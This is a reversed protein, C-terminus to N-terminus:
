PLPTTPAPADVLEGRYTRLHSNHATLRYTWEGNMAHITITNGDRTLFRADAQDILEATFEAVLDAGGVLEIGAMAGDATNYHVRFSMM